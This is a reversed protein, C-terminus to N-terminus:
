QSVHNRGGVVDDVIAVIMEQMPLEYDKFVARASNGEKLTLVRDGPGAQVLDVALTEKGTEKWEPTCLGVVMLRRNDYVRHKVTSTVTGKVIGLNM